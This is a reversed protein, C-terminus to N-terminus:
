EHSSFNLSDLDIRQFVRVSLLDPSHLLSSTIIYEGGGSDEVTWRRRNCAQMNCLLRIVVPGSSWHSSCSASWGRTWLSRRGSGPPPSRPASSPSWSRRTRGRARGWCPALHFSGPVPSKKLQSRWFMFSCTMLSKILKREHVWRIVIVAVWIWTRQKDERGWSYQQMVCNAVGKSIM